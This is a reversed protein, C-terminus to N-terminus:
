YSQNEKGLSHSIIYPVFLKEPNKKKKQNQKAIKTQTHIHIQTRTNM